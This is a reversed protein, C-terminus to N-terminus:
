REPCPALTVPAGPDAGLARCAGDACLRWPSVTKGSAALVIQPVTLGGPSVWWGDVLRAEPGPEMGAGSGKLASSLLTLGGDGVEWTEVWGTREVSHTWGLTVVPDTLALLATGVALCTM